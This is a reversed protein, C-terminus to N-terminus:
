SFLRTWAWEIAAVSAFGAALYIALYFSLFACAFCSDKLPLNSALDSQTNSVPGLSVKTVLPLTRPQYTQSDNLM